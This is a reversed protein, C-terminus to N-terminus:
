EKVVILYLGERDQKLGLEAADESIASLKTRNMVETRYSIFESKLEKIRVNLDHIRYVKRDASHASYVMILALFSLYLLFPWHIVGKEGIQFYSRIRQSWSKKEAGSM